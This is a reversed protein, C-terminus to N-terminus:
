NEINGDPKLTKSQVVPLANSQLFLLLLLYGHLTQMRFNNHM